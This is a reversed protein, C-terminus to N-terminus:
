SKLHLSTDSLSSANATQLFSLACAVGVPLIALLKDQPQTLVGAIM